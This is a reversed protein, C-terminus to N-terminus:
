CPPSASWVCTGMPSTPVAEVAAVRRALLGIDFRLLGTRADLLVVAAAPEPVALDADLVVSDAPIRISREAVNM